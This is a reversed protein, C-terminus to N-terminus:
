SRSVEWIGRRRVGACQPNPKLLDTQPPARANLPYCGGQLGSGSGGHNQARGRATPGTYNAQQSAQMGHECDLVADPPVRFWGEARGLGEQTYHSPLLPLFRRRCRGGKVDGVEKRYNTSKPSKPHICTASM